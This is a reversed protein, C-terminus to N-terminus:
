GRGANQLLSFFDKLEATVGWVYQFVLLVLMGIHAIILTCYGAIESVDATGALAERSFSYSLGACASLAYFISAWIM